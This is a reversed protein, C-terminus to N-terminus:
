VDVGGRPHWVVAGRPGADGSRVLPRISETVGIGRGAAAETIQARLRTWEKTGYLTGAYEVAQSVAIMTGGDASQLAYIVDDPNYHTHAWVGHALRRVRRTGDFIPAVLDNTQGADAHVVLIPGLGVGAIHTNRPDERRDSAARARRQRGRVLFFVIISGVLLAYLLFAFAQDM